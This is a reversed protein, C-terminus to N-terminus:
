FDKKFLGEAFVWDVFWFTVSSRLLISMMVLCIDPPIGKVEEIGELLADEM